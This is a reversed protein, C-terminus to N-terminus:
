LTSSSSHPLIVKWNGCGYIHLYKYISLKSVCWFLCPRITRCIKKDMVLLPTNGCRTRLRNSVFELRCQRHPTEALISPYGYRRLMRNRDSEQRRSPINPIARERERERERKRAREKEREIEIYIPIYVFLYIIMYVFQVRCSFMPENTPTNTCCLGIVVVVILCPSSEHM